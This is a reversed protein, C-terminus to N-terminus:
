ISIIQQHIKLIQPLLMQNEDNIIIHDAAKEKREDTWQKSMIALVEEKSSHDRAMVRKLRLDQPASVTITTDMLQDFGNEFLIAAEQIIYKSNQEAVWNIFDEKLKPHIVENLKQLEQHSNFVITALAKRNVELPSLLVDNGFIVSINQIIDPSNLIKRAELDAYYIPINLASFIQCIWTKGSGINGTLGVKIM